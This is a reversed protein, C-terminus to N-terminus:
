HNSESYKLYSEVVTIKNKKCYDLIYATKDRNAFINKDGRKIGSISESIYPRYSTNGLEKAMATYNPHTGKM